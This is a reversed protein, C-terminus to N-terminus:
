PTRTRPPRPTPIGDAMPTGTRSVAVYSFDEPLRLAGGEATRLPGYGPMAAGAASETGRMTAALAVAAGASQLLERREMRSLKALRSPRAGVTM